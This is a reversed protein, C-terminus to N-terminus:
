SVLDRIPDHFEVGMYAAEPYVSYLKTTQIDDTNVDFCNYHNWETFVGRGKMQQTDSVVVKKTNKFKQDFDQLNLKWLQNDTDNTPNLARENDWKEFLIADLNSQQKSELEVETGVYMSEPRWKMSGLNVPVPTFASPPVAKATPQDAPAPAPAVPQDAPAPTPPQHAPEDPVSQPTRSTPGPEPEAPEPEAPAPTPTPDPPDPTPPTPTPDPTKEDNINKQLRSIDGQIGNIMRSINTKQDQLSSLNARLERLEDSREDGSGNPGFQYTSEIDRIADQNRNIEAEYEDLVKQKDSLIGQLRKLEDNEDLISQSGSGPQNEAPEDPKAPRPNLKPIPDEGSPPDDYLGGQPSNGM